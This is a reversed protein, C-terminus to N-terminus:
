AKYREAYQYYQKKWYLMYRNGTFRQFYYPFSVGKCIIRYQPINNGNDVLEFPWYDAMNKATNFNRGILRKVDYIVNKIDSLGIGVIFGDKTFSVISKAQSLVKGSGNRWIALCSNTTALDIGISPSETSAEEM